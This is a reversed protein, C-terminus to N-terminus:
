VMIAFIFIQPNTGKNMVGDLYTDPWPLIINSWDSTTSWLLYYNIKNLRPRIENNNKSNRFHCTLKLGHVSMKRVLLLTFFHVVGLCLWIFMWIMMDYIEKNWRFANVNIHLYYYYVACHETIAKRYFLILHNLPVSFIVRCHVANVFFLLLCIRTCM